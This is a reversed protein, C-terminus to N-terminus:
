ESISRVVPHAWRIDVAPHVSEPFRTSLPTLRVDAGERRYIRCTTSLGDVAVLTPQDDPTEQDCDAILVAGRAFRPMMSEDPMEFGVLAEGSMAALLDLHGSRGQLATRPDDGELLLPFRSLQSGGADTPLFIDVGTLRRYHSARHLIDPLLDAIFLSRREATWGRVSKRFRHRFESYNMSRDLADLRDAIEGAKPTLRKVLEARSAVDLLGTDWDRVTKIEPDDPLMEDMVHDLAREVFDPNLPRVALLHGLLAEHRRKAAARSEGGILVAPEVDLAGALKTILKTNLRRQEHELRWIYSRSVGVEGALSGMSLGRKERLARLRDGLGDMPSNLGV